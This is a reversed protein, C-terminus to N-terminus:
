VCHATVAPDATLVGNKGQEKVRYMARDAAAILGERTDGHEPYCAIGFSATIRARLGESELFVRDEIRQRLRSCTLKADEEGAHTMVITFEDGGYRAVIDTERMSERLVRGLEALMRSGALHGHADNVTKFGDLDIFIVSLPSGYRRARKIERGLCTKLFRSNALGTLEDTVSQEELRRLELANDVLIALPEALARALELERAGFRAVADDEATFLEALGITRGRSVLPLALSTGTVPSGEPLLAPQRAAGLAAVAAEDAPGDSSDLKHGRGGRLTEIRATESEERLLSLRWSDAGLLEALRGLLLASVEGPDRRTSASRVTDVLLDLKESQDRLHAVAARHRRALTLLRAERRVLM